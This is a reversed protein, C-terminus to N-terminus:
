RSHPVGLLRPRPNRRTGGDLLRDGAAAGLAASTFGILRLQAAHRARYHTQSSGSARARNSRPIPRTKGKGCGTHETLEFAQSDSVQDTEIQVPGMRVVSGHADESLREARVRRSLRQVSRRVQAVRTEMLRLTYATVTKVRDRGTMRSLLENDRNVKRQQQLVAYANLFNRREAQALQCRIQPDNRICPAV